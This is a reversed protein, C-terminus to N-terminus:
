PQTSNATETPPFRLLTVSDSLAKLCLWVHRERDNSKAPFTTLLSQYIQFQVRSARIKNRWETVHDATIEPTLKHLYPYRFGFSRLEAAVHIAANTLSFDGRILYEMCAAASAKLRLVDTRDRRTPTKPHLLPGPPAGSAIESLESYIKYLPELLAQEQPRLQKRLFRLIADLSCLIDALRIAEGKNRSFRLATVLWYLDRDQRLLQRLRRHRLRRKDM